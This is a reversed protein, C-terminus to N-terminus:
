ISIRDTGALSNGNLVRGYVKQWGTALISQKIQFPHILFLLCEAATLFHPSALPFSSIQAHFDVLSFQNVSLIPSLFSHKQLRFPIYPLLVNQLWLWIHELFAVRTYKSQRFINNFSLIDSIDSTLTDECKWKSSISTKQLRPKATMWLGSIAEKYISSSVVVYAM